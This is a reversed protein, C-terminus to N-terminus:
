QLSSRRVRRRDAAQAVRLAWANVRATPAIFFSLVLLVLMLAAFGLLFGGLLLSLWSVHWGSVARRDSSSLFGDLARRMEDLSRNVAGIRSGYRPADSSSEFEWGTIPFTAGARDRLVLRYSTEDVTRGPTPQTREELATAVVGSLRSRSITLVGLSRADITCAVAGEADRECSYRTVPAIAGVGFALIALALAILTGRVRRPRQKQERAVRAALSEPKALPEPLPMTSAVDDAGGRGAEEVARGVAIQQERLRRLVEDQSSATIRGEVSRGDRTHGSWHFSAV